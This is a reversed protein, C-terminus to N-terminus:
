LVHLHTCLWTHGHRELRVTMARVADARGLVAAVEVAGDRVECARLHRLRIRAGTARVLGSGPWTVSPGGLRALQALVEELRAPDTHARLQAVPRFGGLLEVVLDLYRRVARAADPSRAPGAAAVRSTEQRYVPREDLAHQSVGDDPPETVPVPRLRVPTATGYRLPSPPAPRVLTATM